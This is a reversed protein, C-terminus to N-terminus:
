RVSSEPVFPEADEVFVGCPFFLPSRSLLGISNPLNLSEDVLLGSHISRIQM